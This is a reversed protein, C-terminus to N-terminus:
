LSLLRAVVLILWTEESTGFAVEWRGAEEPFLLTGLRYWLRDEASTVILWDAPVQALWSQLLQRLEAQMAPDAQSLAATIQQLIPAVQAPDTVPPSILRQLTGITPVPADATAPPPAAPSVAEHSPAAPPDTAVSGLALPEAPASAPSAPEPQSGTTASDPSEPLGGSAALLQALADRESAPRSADQLVAAAAEQLATSPPAKPLALAARVGPHPWPLEHDHARLLRELYRSLTQGVSRSDGQLVLVIILREALRPEARDAAAELAAGVVLPPQQMLGSIAAAAGAPSATTLQGVLLERAEPEPRGALLQATEAGAGAPLQSLAEHLERSTPLPRGAALDAALYGAAASPPVAAVPAPPRAPTAATSLVPTAARSPPASCSRPLLAVGMLTVAVIAVAWTGPRQPTESATAADPVPAAPPPASPAPPQSSPPITRHRTTIVPGAKSAKLPSNCLQKPLVGLTMALRRLVEEDEVDMETARELEQVVSVELNARRALQDLTWRQAKRLTQLNIAHERTWTRAM